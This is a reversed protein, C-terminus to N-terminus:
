KDKRRSHGLMIGVTAPTLEVNWSITITDQKDLKADLLDDIIEGAKDSANMYVEDKIIDAVMNKIIVTEEETIQYKQRFSKAM